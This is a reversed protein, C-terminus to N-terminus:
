SEIAPLIGFAVFTGLFTAALGGAFYYLAETSEVGFGFSMVVMGGFFLVSSVIFGFFTLVSVAGQSSEAFLEANEQKPAM